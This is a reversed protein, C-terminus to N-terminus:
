CDTAEEHREAEDWAVVRRLGPDEGPMAERSGVVAQGMRDARFRWQLWTSYRACGFLLVVLLLSLGVRM